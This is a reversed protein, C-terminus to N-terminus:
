LQGREKRRDMDIKGFWWGYTKQTRYWQLGCVTYGLGLYMQVPTKVFLNVIKEKCGGAM